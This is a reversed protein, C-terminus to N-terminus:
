HKEQFRALKRFVQSHKLGEYAACYIEYMENYIEVHETVPTYEKRVKVLHKVGEPIDRYIGVAVGAMIAAGLVAADEVCLTECPQGYMDAQIQNWVESKTAGGIIRIKEVEIGNQKMNALIDKQELTIGEMCARAICARDHAFTLGLLTGRADPNWRPSTASAFYPLMILGKAGIPVAEIQRNLIEYVNTGTEEAQLREMGGIEDRYWRFVSAAGTQYGEFQYSGTVAHSTVCASSDPDRYPYDLCAIAMGGTGLSVSVLGKETIGAGISASNQDGAGVCVPTGAAFGTMLSAAESIVGVKTACPMPRPLHEASLGVLAMLDKDWCNNVNDFCGFLCADPYDIYYDDAGLNRLIYDQLQVIRKVKGWTNREKKQMWLVKSIIWTTNLPLGTRNYFDEPSIKEAIEEIEETTRNDQWSITKLVQENEDLFISTTRQTSLAISAIEEPNIGANEVAEACTEFTKGLVMEIDQEVWNPRPYMCEYERYASGLINADLDFIMTKAGTTGVDIGCLYKRM